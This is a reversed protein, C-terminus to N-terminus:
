WQWAARFAHGDGRAPMSEEVVNEPVLTRTIHDDNNSHSCCDIHFNTFVESVGIPDELIDDSLDAEGNNLDGEDFLEKLDIHSMADQTYPPGEAPGKILKLDTDSIGEQELLNFAIKPGDFLADTEWQAGTERGLQNDPADPGLSIGLLDPPSGIPDEFIGKLGTYPAEEQEKREREGCRDAPPSHELHDTAVELGDFLNTWINHIVGQNVEKM